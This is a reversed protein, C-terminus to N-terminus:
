EVPEAMRIKDESKIPAIEIKSESAFSSCLKSKSIESLKRSAKTITEDWIESLKAAAKPSSAAIIKKVGFTEYYRRYLYPGGLILGLVSILLVIAFVFLSIGGGSSLDFGAFKSGDEENTLSTSMIPTVDATMSTVINATTPVSSPISSPSASPNIVVGDSTPARTVPSRSPIATAVPSTTPSSTVPSASPTNLLRRRQNSFDFDATLIQPDEGTKTIVAELTYPKGFDLQCQVEFKPNTRLQKSSVKGSCGLGLNTVGNMLEKISLIEGFEHAVWYVRDGQIKEAFDFQIFFGKATVSKVNLQAAAIYIFSVLLFYM